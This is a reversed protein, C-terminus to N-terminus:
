AADIDVVTRLHERRQHLLALLQAARHPNAGVVAAEAGADEAVVAVRGATRSHSCTLLIPREMTLLSFVAIQM